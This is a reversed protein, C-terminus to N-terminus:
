VPRRRSVAKHYPYFVAWKLALPLTPVRLAEHSGLYPLVRRDGRLLRFLSHFTYVWYKVSNNRVGASNCSEMGVYMKVPANGTVAEILGHQKWFRPNLEIPKYCSDKTDLLFELEFPGTYALGDLITRTRKLLGAPSTTIETVDGNGVDDPHRLIHRTAVYIRHASDHWGSISINDQPRVSLAEQYCWDDPVMGQSRWQELLAEFDVRRSVLKVRELKQFGKWTLRPRVFFGGPFREWPNEEAGITVPVPGAGMDDIFRYFEYRDLITDLRHDSGIHFHTNPLTPKRREDQFVPHFVEDTFFVIKRAAANFSRSLFGIVGSPEALDCAMVEVKPRVLEMFVPGDKKDKVCVIRGRWGISRLAVVISYANIYSGLIIAINNSIM